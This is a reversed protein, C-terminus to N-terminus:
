GGAEPPLEIFPNLYPVGMPAFHRVNETLVVLSRLDATAAIIADEAAIRRGKGRAVTILVGARMAIDLDVALVRAHYHVQVLDIWTQLRAAKADAGRHELWSVGHSLEMLTVVSLHLHNSNRQLWAQVQANPQSKTPAGASLVNTDLLYAL